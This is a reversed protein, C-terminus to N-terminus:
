MSLNSNILSVCVVMKISQNTSQNISQNSGVKASFIEAIDHHSCIQAMKIINALVFNSISFRHLSIYVSLFIFGIECYFPLRKRIKHM